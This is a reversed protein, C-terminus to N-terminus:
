QSFSIGSMLFNIVATMADNLNFICWTNWLVLALLASHYGLKLWKKIDM